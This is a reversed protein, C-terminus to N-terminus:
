RQEWKRIHRPQLCLRTHFQQSLEEARGAASLMDNPQVLQYLLKLSLHLFNTLVNDTGRKWRSRLGYMVAVLSFWVCTRQTCDGRSFDSNTPCWNVCEDIPRPLNTTAAALVGALPVSASNSSHYLFCTRRKKWFLDVQGKLSTVKGQKDTHKGMWHMFTTNSNDRVHRPKRSSKYIIKSICAVRKQPTERQDKIRFLAGGCLPVM